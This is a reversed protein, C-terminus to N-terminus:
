QTRQAAYGVRGFQFVHGGVGFGFGPEAALDDIQGLLLVFVIVFNLDNGTFGQLHVTILLSQAALQFFFGELAPTIRHIAQILHRARRTRHHSARLAFGM